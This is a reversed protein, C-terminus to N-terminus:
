KGGSIIQKLSGRIDGTVLGGHYCVVNEIDYVLLKELSKLATPMDLTFMDNPPCLKGNDATLADGTVLAKDAKIYVCVHGPLHGPVEIVEIGGDLVQGDKVATVKEVIELAKLGVIADTLAKKEQDSVGATLRKEAAEIRPHREKGTLYAAQTESSLVEIDTYKDVVSKLAGVHDDDCHTVIIKRVDSLKMGTDAMTKELIPLFGSFGVDVLVLGGDYRIAVANFYSKFGGLDAPLPLMTTFQM